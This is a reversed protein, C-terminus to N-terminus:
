MHYIFKKRKNKEGILFIFKKQETPMWAIVNINSVHIKNEEERKNWIHSIFKKKRNYISECILYSKRKGGYTPRDLVFQLDEFCTWVHKTNKVHIEDHKSLDPCSWEFRIDTMSKKSLKVM